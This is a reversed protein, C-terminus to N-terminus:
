RHSEVASEVLALEDAESAADLVNMGAREVVFVTKGKTDVYKGDIEVSALGESFPGVLAAIVEVQTTGATPL